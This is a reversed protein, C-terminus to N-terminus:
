KYIEGTVSYRGTINHVVKSIAWIGKLRNPVAEGSIDINMKNTIFPDPFACEFSAKYGLDGVKGAGQGKDTAKKKPTVKKKIWYKQVDPDTFNKPEMIYDIVSPIVGSKIDAKLKSEDLEWNIISDDIDTTTKTVIYKGDKKEPISVDGGSAANQKPRFNLSKLNKLGSGWHLPYPTLYLPSFEKPKIITVPADTMRLIYEDNESDYIFKFETGWKLSMRKLFAFDSEFLQLEFNTGTLKESKTAFDAEIGGIFSYKDAIEDLIQERTVEEWRKSKEEQCLNIEKSFGKFVYSIMATDALRISPSGLEGSFIMRSVELNYPRVKAYYDLLETSTDYGAILQLKTGEVLKELVSSYGSNVTMSLMASKGDEEVVSISALSRGILESLDNDEILLKYFFNGIM